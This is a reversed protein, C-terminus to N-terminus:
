FGYDEEEEVEPVSPPEKNKTEKKNSKYFGEPAVLGFDEAFQIIDEYSKLEPFHEISFQQGMRGYLHLFRCFKSDYNNFLCFDLVLDYEECNQKKSSNNFVEVDRHNKWEVIHLIHGICNGEKDYKHTVEKECYIFRNTIERFSVFIDAFRQTDLVFDYDGQRSTRIFNVFWDQYKEYMYASFYNRSETICFLSYPPYLDTYYNESYLGLRFPNLKYSELGSMETYFCNIRFNAFCLHEYNCELGLGFKNYEEVADVSKAMDMLKHQIKGVGIRTLLLTKGTGEDGAIIMKGIRKNYDIFDKFQIEKM